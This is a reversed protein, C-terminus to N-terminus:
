IYGYREPFVLELLLLEVYRPLVVWWHCNLVEEHSYERIVLGLRTGLDLAMVQFWLTCDQDVFERLFQAM